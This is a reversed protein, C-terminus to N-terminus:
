EEAARREARVAQVVEEALRDAEEPPLNAREAVEQAMAFFAERKSKWQQYLWIPILAAVRQGDSEIIYIADHDVVEQVISVFQQETEAVSITREM